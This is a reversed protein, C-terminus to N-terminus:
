SVILKTLGEVTHKSDALNLSNKLTSKLKKEAELSM